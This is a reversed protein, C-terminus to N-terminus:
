IFFMAAAGLSAATNINSAKNQAKIQSNQANRDAEMGAVDSMGSIGQAAVGRGLQMMSSGLGLNRERQDIRATNVAQATGTAEGLSRARALRTLAPTPTGTAGYRSLMRDFSGRGVATQTAASTKAQDVLATSNVDAVMKEETGGFQTLYHNWQDRTLAALQDNSTTTSM